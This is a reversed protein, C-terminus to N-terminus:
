RQGTLGSRQLSRWVTSAHAGVIGAIKYTSLGTRHLTVVVADDLRKKHERTHEGVGLVELNELRNDDKVGNRHHVVGDPFGMVLRHEYCELYTGVDVKWRLSVYGAGTVRRHDPPRPPVDDLCTIREIEASWPTRGADKRREYEYHSKCYGKMVAWRMCGPRRCLSTYDNCRGCYGQREDEPHHSTSGCVPCTIAM